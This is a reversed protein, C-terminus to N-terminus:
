PSSSSVATKLIYCTTAALCPMSTAVSGLLKGTSIFELSICRSQCGRERGQTYFLEMTGINTFVESVGVLFYPIFQWWISMPETFKPDLPDADPGAANSIHLTDTLAQLPWPAVSKACASVRSHKFHGSAWPMFISTAKHVPGPM